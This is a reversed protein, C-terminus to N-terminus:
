LLTRLSKPAPKMIPSSPEFTGAGAWDQPYGFFLKAISGRNLNAFLMQLLPGLLGCTSLICFYLSFRCRAVYSNLPV